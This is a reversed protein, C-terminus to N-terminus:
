KPSHRAASMRGHLARVIVVDNAAVRYFIVHSGQVVSRYRPEADPRRRGTEPLNGLRGFRRHLDDVHRMM